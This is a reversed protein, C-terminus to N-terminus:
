QNATEWVWDAEPVTKGPVGGDDVENWGVSYLVFSGDATRRYKLPQGNILDNPLRDAFQPVLADLTEPHKGQAVRYRELACAVLAENVMTQNRAMTQSAKLYNPIFTAALFTYPSFHEVTTQMERTFDEAKGPLVRHSGLDVSGLLRQHMFAFAAMNQYVWGRPAWTLLWYEPNKINEWLSPKPRGSYFLHILEGPSTAELTHCVGARESEMSGLFPVLLDIDKLQQQLALLQPERWGQLRFGDAIIHAYLGTIAVDIMAAVLTTPKGSPEEKLLRRLDHLLTLERLAAEPHGTLLYCQARQGLVQAVTRVTVFNPIPMAFPHQYDSDMRAHPRKLASRILEFDSAAQDTFTLYDAAALPPPRLWVRFSNSESAEVRLGVRGPLEKNDPFLERIREATPLKEAEVAIQSPKIQDVARAVFLEIVGTASQGLANRLLKQAQGRATPSALRWVASFKDSSVEVGTKEAHLEAVLVPNTNVFPPSLIQSFPRDKTGKSSQNPGQASSEKVFWGSMKPAKFINQEDPVPPPIYTAWELRAGKAELELRCKEWARKGRVKEESYFLAVITALCAAWFIVRRWVRLRERPIRNEPTASM